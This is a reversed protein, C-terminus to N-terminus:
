VVFSGLDVRPRDLIERSVPVGVAGAFAISDPPTSFCILHTACRCDSAGFRPVPVSAGPLNLLTRAWVCERRQTGTAYWIEVPSAHASLYDIHWHLLKLPRLHRAVRAALGGPGRASGAYVYWGAPFHFRGLRGVRLTVPHPLNLNLAYTGPRDTLM